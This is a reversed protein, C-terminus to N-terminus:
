IARTTRLASAQKSLARFGGIGLDVFELALSRRPCAARLLSSWAAYPHDITEGRRRAAIIELGRSELTLPKRSKPGQM